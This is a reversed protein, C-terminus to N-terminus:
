GARLRLDRDLIHHKRMKKATRKQEPRDHATRASCGVGVSASGGISLDVDDWRLAM